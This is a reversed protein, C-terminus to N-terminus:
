TVIHLLLILQVRSGRPSAHTKLSELIRCKHSHGSLAHSSREVLHSLLDLLRLLNMIQHDLPLINLIHNDVALEPTGGLATM